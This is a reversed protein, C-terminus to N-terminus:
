RMCRVCGFQCAPGWAVHSVVMWCLPAEASASRSRSERAFVGHVQVVARTPREGGRAVSAAVHLPSVGHVTLVSGLPRSDRRQLGAPWTGPFVGHLTLCGPLAASRLSGRCSGMCWLFRRAVIPRRSAPLIWLAELPFVGHVQSRERRDFAALCRRRVDFWPFVGHVLVAAGRRQRKIDSSNSEIPPM